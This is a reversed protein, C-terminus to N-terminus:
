VMKCKDIIGCLVNTVGQLVDRYLRRYAEYLGKLVKEWVCMGEGRCFRKFLRISGKM